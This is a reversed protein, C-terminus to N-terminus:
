AQFEWMQGYHSCDGDGCRVPSMAGWEVDSNDETGGDFVTFESTATIYFHEFYGCKPCKLGEICGENASKGFVRKESLVKAAEDSLDDLLTTLDELADHQAKDREFDLNQRLARILAKQRRLKPFDVKGVFKKFTMPKKAM